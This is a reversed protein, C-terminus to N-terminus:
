PTSTHVDSGQVTPVSEQVQDSDDTPQVIGYRAQFSSSRRSFIRGLMMGCLMAAVICVVALKRLQRRRRVGAQISVVPESSPRPCNGPVLDSGTENGSLANMSEAYQQQGAVGPHRDTPQMPLASAPDGPRASRKRSRATLVSADQRPHSTAAKQPTATTDMVPITEIHGANQAAPSLRPMECAPPPAFTAETWPTLAAVIAAADQHRRDRDKAMMKEVVAALKEPIEPRVTRLPIPDKTLQYLLKQAVAKGAFPPRGALLFYFTAGLSYVDTRTDVAQGHFAQEPSVYDATGLIAKPDYQQTLLDKHDQFFRALGLDLIKVIGRRDLLINAPKIDRHILGTQHLHQLGVATQRMYAAARDVAMPGFKEVIEQLNSGDVYEMVLFHLDQQQGSDYTHVINPHHLAGAARAERDFRALAVPNEAKALPLIKLVVKRRMTLQECLFVNSNRGCGLRELVKYKGFTFGRFKGQLLEHAQFSTLLGDRILVTALEKPESPLQGVPYRQELSADLRDPEILGSQRVLGLFADSTPPAAM